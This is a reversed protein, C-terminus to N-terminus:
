TSATAQGYIPINKKTSYNKDESETLKRKQGGDAEKVKLRPNTKHKKKTSM